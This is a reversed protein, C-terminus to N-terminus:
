AVLEKLTLREPFLEMFHAFFLQRLLLRKYDATGRADSIPAIEDNMVTIAARVTDNTITKGALFASTNALYKPIPAVGGASVHAEQITDGDMELRIASNVSAIDLYTRKSVKEFHFRTNKGPLTFRVSTVIEDPSKDLQKYGEYLDRLKLSRESKGQLTITSNLALFFVTLDGIPSANVFNGVVTGMNRIPTSSVLLLHKEINPFHDRLEKSELLDNAVCAGGIICQDGEVRIGKLDGDNFVSRIAAHHMTDHKQVYLDTGGGLPIGNDKRHGNNPKIAQMRPKIRAFYSPLFGNEVSWKLPNRADKKSLKEAVIAAAREISKYGTCRCINGDIARIALDKTVAERSLCCGSLSVVFGPTCFGCQTGSEDVLAQQVPTLKEMNLGEVTVIHKGQVSALALLCSTMSRYEVRDDKLEGVLVTCAGCDGERCGIKTGPLHNHYRILDLLVMGEPADSEVLLDNLIFSLM